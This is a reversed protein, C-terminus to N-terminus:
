PTRLLRQTRLASKLETEGAVFGEEETLAFWTSGEFQGVGVKTKKFERNM